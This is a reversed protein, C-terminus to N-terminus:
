VMYVGMARGSARVAVAVAARAALPNEEEGMALSATGSATPM